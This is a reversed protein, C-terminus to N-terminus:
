EGCVVKWAHLAFNYWFQAQEESLNHLKKNELHGKLYTIPGQCKPENCLPLPCVLAPMSRQKKVKKATGDKAM